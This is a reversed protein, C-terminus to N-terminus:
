ALLPGLCANSHPGLRLPENPLAPLVDGRGRPALPPQLTIIQQYGNDLYAVPLVATLLGLAAAASGALWRRVVTGPARQWARLTARTPRVGHAFAYAWAEMAAPM